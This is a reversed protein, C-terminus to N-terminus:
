QASQTDGEAEVNKLCRQLARKMAAGTQYRKEHDKHLAKDIINRVCVPIGERLKVIDPHKETMIQYSLAAISDAQFPRQSTLLFFMTAGLSFIDSRGDVPKGAMQEPSMFSPTGLIVGTKTRSSSTIRAIGFDTIKISQNAENYMINAPKIDRHVVNQQHAYDLASAADVMMRMTDAVPLLNEAKTFASLPKGEIYEMAIYALDHDEGADYITVINPHNLRGAAAAENFFRSSVDKLEEEEFEQSLALTKIAVTRDITPDRGLYVVGMAGKGLEGVLEYRGLTPQQDMGDVLLSSAAFTGTGLLVNRELQEAKIKRAQADKFAPTTKLIHEYAAAAKNFKRKREFDLALNYILEMNAEDAPLKRFCAMAKDLRGQEQYSLGLERNTYASDALHRFHQTRYIRQAALTMYGLVLLMAPAGAHLWSQRAILLYQESGVLVFLLLLSTFATLLVRAKPVVIALYAAIFLMLLLEIWAFSLPRKYFDQNLISALAHATLELRGMQGVTTQFTQAGDYGALIIKNRFVHPSVKGSLIESSTFMAFPLQGNEKSYFASLLGFDSGIPVSYKGLSVHKEAEVAIGGTKGALLQKSLQLVLSPYYQDQYRTILSISRVVRDPRDVLHADGIGSAQKNFAALPLHFSPAAVPPTAGALWILLDRIVGPKAPVFEKIRHRSLAEASAEDMLPVNSRDMSLYINRTDRIAKALQQDIDLAKAAKRALSKIEASTKPMRKAMLGDAIENFKEFYDLGPVPQSDTLPMILGVAKPRASALTRLLERLQQRLSFRNDSEAPSVGDVNIIVIDDAAGAIRHTLHLGADYLAGEVHMLLPLNVAKAVVLVLFLFGVVFWGQKIFTLKRM